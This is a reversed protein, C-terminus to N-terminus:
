KIFYMKKSATWDLDRAILRYYYIGSAMSYTSFTVSHRGESQYEDVLVQVTRGLNDYVTLKIHSGSPIVYSIITSPNFPNPYNQHLIVQNPLDAPEPENSVPLTKLSTTTGSEVNLEFLEDTTLVYLLESDPKKYLGEINYDSEFIISFTDGYDTSRYLNYTESIYLTGPVEPDTVFRGILRADKPLGLETWTGSKGLDSSRFLTQSYSITPDKVVDAYLFGSDADFTIRNFWVSSDAMEFTSTDRTNSYLHGSSNIAFNQSDDFPYRFFYRFPIKGSNNYVSFEELGEFIPWDSLKYDFPLIYDGMTVYVEKKEPLIQFKGPYGIEEDTRNTAKIVVAIPFDFLNGEFDEM